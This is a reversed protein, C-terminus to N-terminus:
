KLISKKFSVEPIHSVWDVYFVSMRAWVKKFDDGTLFFNPSWVMRTRDSVSRPEM